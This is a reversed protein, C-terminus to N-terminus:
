ATAALPLTGTRDAYTRELERITVEVREPEGFDKTLVEHVIQGDDRYVIGKLADEVARALKLLDPKTAPYAPASGKIAGANKGTGRHGKNRPRYFTFEIALPGDMLDPTDYVERAKDACRNQWNVQEPDDPVVVQRGTHRHRFSRKSGSTRAKGLITFRLETM